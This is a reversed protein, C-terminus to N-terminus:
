RLDGILIVDNVMVGSAYILRVPLIPAAKFASQLGEGEGAVV